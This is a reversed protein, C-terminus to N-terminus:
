IIYGNCSWALYEPAYLELMGEEVAIDIQTAIDRPGRTFLAFTNMGHAKMLRVHTRWHELGGLEHAYAYCGFGMPLAGPAPAPPREPLSPPAGSALPALMLVLGLLGAGKALGGDDCWKVRCIIM